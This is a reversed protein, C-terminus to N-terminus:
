KKKGHLYGDLVLIFLVLTGVFILASIFPTRPNKFNQPPLKPTALKITNNPKNITSGSTGLSKLTTSVSVRHVPAYSVNAFRLTFWLGLAILGCVVLTTGLTFKVKLKM